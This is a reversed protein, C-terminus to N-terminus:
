EKNEKRRFKEFDSTLSKAFAEFKSIDGTIMVGYVYLSYLDDENYNRIFKYDIKKFPMIRVDGDYWNKDRARRGGNCDMAVIATTAVILIAFIAIANVINVDM